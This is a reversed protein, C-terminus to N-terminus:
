AGHGTSIWLIKESYLVGMRALMADWIRMHGTGRRIGCYTRVIGWGRRALMENCIRMVCRAGDFEM